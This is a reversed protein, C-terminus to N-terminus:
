AEAIWESNRVVHAEYQELGYGHLPHGEVAEDNLGGFKTLYAGTFHVMGLAAPAPSAPDVITATTGDWAPDPEDLYFIVVTNRSDSIVHPLPAGSDLRVGLDIRDAYQRGSLRGIEREAALREVYAARLATFNREAAAQEASAKATALRAQAKESENM